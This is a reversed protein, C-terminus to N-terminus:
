WAFKHFVVTPSFCYSVKLQEDVADVQEKTLDADGDIAIDVVMAFFTSHYPRKVM